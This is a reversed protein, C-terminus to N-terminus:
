RLKASNLEKTSRTNPFMARYEKAEAETFAAGSVMHRYSQVAKMIEQAMERLKPDAVRKLIKEQV